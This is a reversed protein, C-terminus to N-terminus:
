KEGNEPTGQSPFGLSTHATLCYRGSPVVCSPTGLNAQLSAKSILHLSQWLDYGRTTSLSIISLIINQYIGPPNIFGLWSSLSLSSRHWWWRKLGYPSGSCIWSDSTYSCILLMCVICNISLVNLVVRYPSAPNAVVHLLAPNAPNSPNRESACWWLPSTMLRLKIADCLLSIICKTPDTRGRM